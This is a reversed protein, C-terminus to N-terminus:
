LSRNTDDPGNSLHPCQPGSRRRSRCLTVSSPPTTWDEHLGRGARQRSCSHACLKHPATPEQGLIASCHPCCCATPRLATGATHPCAPPALCLAGNGDSVKEPFPIVPSLRLLYKSGVRGALTHSSRYAQTPQAQVVRLAGTVM